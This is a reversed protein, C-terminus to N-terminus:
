NDLATLTEGARGRPVARPETGAAAAPPPSRATRGRPSEGAM